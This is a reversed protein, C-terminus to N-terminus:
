GEVEEWSLIEYQNTTLPFSPPPSFRLNADYNINRTQYGTGDTYAFGYRQRTAIMGLLTLTQRIHYPSCRTQGGGPPRYYHRGVRGNQAILAADIRLDNDSVMGVNFNGQAILGITDSGDTNTYRLDNNVIINTRLTPVDPFRGSAITVRATDIQGDVWVHDEVFILGNAPIAATHHLVQNQISWTGWGSQGASNTCSISPPPVLSTVRYIDFTDNTKLVIHYGLVGSPAYYRGGSQADTKIQALDGTMGAFDIPTASVARGAEFVDPRNPMPSPPIPDVPTVHTHVGFEEAGSHDPDDYTDRSSTVQNHALGDFRIGNNSHVEGFIETGAGFRMVDDAAVAYNALSPIGLTTEITRPVNQNANVRGTSRIRVVTSGIPPPTITLTFQGIVVGDKDRVDHVYPGPGGTGDQYDTPAHALHWRYYDVGAEAVQLAREREVAQRSLRLNFVGLQFLATTILFAIAGFVLAPILIAGRPTRKGKFTSLFLRM